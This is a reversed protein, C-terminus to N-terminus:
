FMLTLLYVNGNMDGLIVFANSRDGSGDDGHVFIADSSHATNIHSRVGMMHVENGNNPDLLKLKRDNRAVLLLNNAVFTCVLNRLSDKTRAVTPTPPLVFEKGEEHLFILGELTVTMRPAGTRFDWTHIFVDSHTLILTKDSSFECNLLPNHGGDLVHWEKGTEASWVFCEGNASGTVVWAGCPSYIEAVM